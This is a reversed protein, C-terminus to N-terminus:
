NVIIPMKATIKFISDDLFEFSISGKSEETLSLLAEKISDNFDEVFSECFRVLFNITLHNDTVDTFISANIDNLLIYLVVTRIILNSTESTSIAIRSDINELRLIINSKNYEPILYRFLKQIDLYAIDFPQKHLLNIIDSIQNKLRVNPTSSYNNHLKAVFNLLVKSLYIDKRLKSEIHRTHKLENESDLKTALIELDIEIIDIFSNLIMKQKASYHREMTDMICISGFVSKDSRLLPCGLYNIISYKLDEIHKWESQLRANPVELMSKNTIVYKSFSKCAFTPMLKENYPHQVNLNSLYVKFDDEASLTILAVPVSFINSILDLKKQWKEQFKIPIINNM